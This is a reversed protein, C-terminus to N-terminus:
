LVIHILPSIYNVIDGFDQLIEIYVICVVCIEMKRGLEDSEQFTKTLCYGIQGNYNSMGKFNSTQLTGLVFGPGNVM